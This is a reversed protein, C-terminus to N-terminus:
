PLCDPFPISPPQYQRFEWVWQIVQSGDPTFRLVLKAYPIVSGDSYGLRRISDSSRRVEFRLASQYAGGDLSRLVEIRDHDAVRERLWYRAAERDSIYWLRHNAYDCDAGFLFYEGLLAYADDERGDNLAQIFRAATVPYRVTAPDFPTPAFTRPPRTDPPVSRPPGISASCAAALVVCLALLSSRAMRACRRSRATAM